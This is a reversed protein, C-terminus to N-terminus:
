VSSNPASDTVTSEYSSSTAVWPEVIGATARAAPRDIASSGSPCSNQSFGVGSGTVRAPRARRASWDGRAVTLRRTSRHCFARQAEARPATGLRSRIPSGSGSRGPEPRPSGETRAAPAQGDLSGTQADGVCRNGGTDPVSIRKPDRAASDRLVSTLWDRDASEAAPDVTGIPESCPPTLLVMPVQARDRHVLDVAEDIRRARAPSTAEPGRTADVEFLMVIAQPRYGSIADDVGAAWTRCKSGSAGDATARLDELRCDFSGLGLGSVGPVAYPGNMTLALEGVAADGVLLVRRSESPASKRAFRWIRENNSVVAVSRASTGSTSAFLLVVTIAVAVPALVAQVRRSGFTGRRVPLEVLLYSASALALTIVLLVLARPVQGLGLKYRDLWQLVLFHYLYVGYSILGLWRLPRISFAPRLVPSAPQVAAAVVTAAAAAALFFGGRYMWGPPSLMLAVLVAVGLFGAVELAVRAVRRVPGWSIRLVLALAAGLLLAQARTDTGWYGRATAGAFGMDVASAVALAFVVLVLLRDRGRLLWTLGFFIPPWILYWQEEIALSWTHSLPVHPPGAAILHWNEVYFLTSLGDSRIREFQSPPAAIWAYRAVLVLLLLLAPLLRRIRRGWFALFKIHGTSSREAALLSTILFGSLVMFIDVGLFGGPAGTGFHNALVALVAFARLGDLPPQYKFREQPVTFQELHGMGTGPAPSLM